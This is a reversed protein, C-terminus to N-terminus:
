RPLGTGPSAIAAEVNGAMVSLIRVTETYQGPTLGDM